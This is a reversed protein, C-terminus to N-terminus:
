VTWVKAKKSLLWPKIDRLQKGIMWAAIPAAETIIALDTIVSTNTVIGFTAYHVDILYAKNM